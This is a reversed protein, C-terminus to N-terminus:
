PVEFHMEYEKLVPPAAARKAFSSVLKPYLNRAYAEADAKTEWATISIADSSGDAAEILPYIFRCGKEKSVISAIEKADARAESIQKPDMKLYTVRMWM